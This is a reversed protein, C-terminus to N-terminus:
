LESDCDGSLWEEQLLKRLLKVNEDGIVEAIQQDLERKTQEMSENNAQGTDTLVIHKDRSNGKVETMKVLQASLLGQICKHAGQRSIGILRSIESITLMGNKKLVALIHAETKNIPQGNSEHLRKRLELHKDSILDILSISLTVKDYEM